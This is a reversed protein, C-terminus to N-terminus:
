YRADREYWREQEQEALREDRAEAEDELRAEREFPTEGQDLHALSQAEALCQERATRPPRTM